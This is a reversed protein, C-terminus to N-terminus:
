NLIAARPRTSRWLANPRIRACVRCSRWRGRKRTRSIIVFRGPPASRWRNGKSALAPWRRRKLIILEISNLTTVAFEGTTIDCYALGVREGDVVWAALYNPRKEDLMGPEIVTGPTVVRTVERPVIGKVTAPDAMQDAIAVRYGREVLTAVYGEVSHHPVGAL